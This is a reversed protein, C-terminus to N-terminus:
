LAYLADGNGALIEGGVTWMWREPLDNTIFRLEAVLNTFSARGMMEQTYEPTVDSKITTAVIRTPTQLAVVMILRSNPGFPLIADIQHPSYFRSLEAMPLVEYTLIHVSRRRELTGSAGVTVAVFHDAYIGGTGVRADQLEM